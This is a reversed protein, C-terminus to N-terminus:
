RIKSAEAAAGDFDYKKIYSITSAVIAANEEGIEYELLKSLESMAQGEEFNDLMTVIRNREDWIEDTTIPKHQKASYPIEQKIDFAETLGELMVDLYGEPVTGESQIEDFVGAACQKEQSYAYEYLKGFGMTRAGSKIGHILIRYNEIDKVQRYYGLKEKQEEVSEAFIRATEEYTELDGCYELGQALNIGYRALIQSKDGYDPRSIDTSIGMLKDASTGSLAGSIAGGSVETNGPQEGAEENSIQNIIGDASDAVTLIQTGNETRVLKAPLFRRIFSELTSAEVPKSLYDDFGAEIYMKRVGKIANATLVVFKAKHSKNEINNMAKIAKITEIGDMGPMMHDIFVMDYSHRKVCEICEQGSTVSDIRVLTKKLLGKVVELNMRNDDVLLIRADPATFSERYVQNKEEELDEMGIDGIPTADHITQRLTIRFESGKGLESDVKIEAGMLKAIANVINLGLGTGEISHTQETDCRVFPDFLTNLYEKKIGIGTDKVTFTLICEGGSIFTDIYFEVGGANTYKVANNLLNILIQRIRVEDGYLRAPLKRDVDVKFALGKESCRLNFMCIIGSLMKRTDYEAEVLEMQGAEVKSFDLIDNIISLLAEGANKINNSYGRIIKQTSERRIMENMGLVTNIPTRIEHSMNALFASKANNAKDARQREKELEEIFLQKQTVDTVSVLYGTMEGFDDTLRHITISCHVSEGRIDAEFTRNNEEAGLTDDELEFIETLPVVTNKRGELHLLRVAEDSAQVLVRKPNYVLVATQLAHFIHKGSNAETLQSEDLSRAVVFIGVTCIFQFFTSAPIAVYGIMPLLTDFINGLVLGGLATFVKKVIFKNRPTNAKRIVGILIVFYLISLLVTYSVYVLGWFDFKFSYSMGFSTHFFEVCGRRINAPYLFIGVVSIVRITNKVWKRIELWETMLFALMILSAFVGFIGISRYMYAMDVDTQATLKGFCYSWIAGCLAYICFWRNIKSKKREDLLMRVVFSIDCIAIAFLINEIVNGM